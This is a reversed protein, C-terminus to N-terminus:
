MANQNILACSRSALDIGNGDLVLEDKVKEFREDNSEDIEADHTYNLIGDGHCNISAADNVFSVAIFDVGESTGFKIDSWDKASVTLLEHHKDVLKGNRWLSLKARPLLLCADTCEAKVSSPTGHDVVHIQSGETDIM